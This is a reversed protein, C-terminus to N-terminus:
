PQGRRRGRQKRAGSSTISYGCSQERIDSCRSVVAIASRPGRSIHSKLGCHSVFRVNFPDSSDGLAERVEVDSKGVRDNAVAFGALDPVTEVDWVIVSPKM